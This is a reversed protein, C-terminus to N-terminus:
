RGCRHRLPRHPANEPGATMRHQHRHDAPAPTVDATVVVLLHPRVGHQEPLDGADLGRRALEVLADAYRQAATRTDGAVPKALPDLAAKLTAGGDPTLWGGLCFMGQFSAAVSFRRSAHADQEDRRGQDPKAADRIVRLEAAFRVPDVLRAVEILQAEIGRTTAVDTDAALMAVARAHALSILGAALAAATVPLQRLLRATKVRASAEQGAQLCRGRLWSATSPAGDAEGYRRADFVGLRRQIEGDLRNRAAFM